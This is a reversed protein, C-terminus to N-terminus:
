WPPNMIVPEFISFDLGVLKRTHFPFFTEGTWRSLCISPITQWNHVRRVLDNKNNDCFDLLQPLAYASHIPAGTKQYMEEM